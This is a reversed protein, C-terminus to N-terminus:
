IHSIIIYTTNLFLIIHPLSTFLPMLIFYELYDEAPSPPNLLMHTYQCKLEITAVHRM